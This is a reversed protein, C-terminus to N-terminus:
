KSPAGAEATNRREGGGSSIEQTWMNKYAFYATRLQRIFPSLNGDGQSCLGLWEEHM